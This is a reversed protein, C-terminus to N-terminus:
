QNSLCPWDSFDTIFPIFDTKRLLISLIFLIFDTKRLLISLIFPIFGM